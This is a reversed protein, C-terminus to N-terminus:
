IFPCFMIKALICKKEIRKEKKEEGANFLTLADYYLQLLLIKFQLYKKISIMTQWLKAATLYVKFTFDYVTIGRSIIEMKLFCFSFMFFNHKKKKKERERMENEM